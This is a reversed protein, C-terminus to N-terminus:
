EQILYGDDILKQLNFKYTGNPMTIVINNYRYTIQNPEGVAGGNSQLTLYGPSLNSSSSDDDTKCYIIGYSKDNVPSHDNFTYISALTNNEIDKFSLMGGIGILQLQPTGGTMYVSGTLTGGSLPLYDNLDLGTVLRNNYFFEITKPNEGNITLSDDGLSVIINENQQSISGGEITINGSGLLSQNNITKLSTTNGAATLLDSSSKGAITVGNRTITTGLDGTGAHQIVISALSHQGGESLIIAPHPTDDRKINITPVNSMTGGVNFTGSVPNSLLSINGSGILSQGNITKLNGQSVYKSSLSSSLKSYFYQLGEFNLYKM